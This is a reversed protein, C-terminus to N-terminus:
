HTLHVTLAAGDYKRNLLERFDLEAAQLQEPDPFTVHLAPKTQQQQDDEEAGAVEDLLTPVDPLDLGWDELELPDWDNALADWDWDGFGVNDKIVFEARQAETLGDAPLVPVDEVGLVKLAQLRMNGGLVVPHDLSEVVIPRLDLMQPFDRLSKVLQDLKHKKITRPNAPNALLKKVPLRHHTTM